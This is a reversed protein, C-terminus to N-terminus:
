APPAVNFVGIYDTMGNTTIPRLPLPKAADILTGAVADLRLDGPEIANGDADRVTVLLLVGSSGRKIAYRKAVMDNLDALNITSSHLTVGGVTTTATANAQMPKAPAASERRNCGALGLLPLLIALLIIRYSNNM